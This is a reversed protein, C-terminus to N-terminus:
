TRDDVKTHRQFFNGTGSSKRDRVRDIKIESKRESDKESKEWREKEHATM